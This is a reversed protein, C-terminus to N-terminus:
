SPPFGELTMAHVTVGVVCGDHDGALAAPPAVPGSAVDDHDVVSRDALDLMTLADFQGHRVAPVFQEQFNGPAVTPGDGEICLWTSHDLEETLRASGSSGRQLIHEAVGALVDREGAYIAVDWLESLGRAM